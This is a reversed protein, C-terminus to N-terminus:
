IYHNIDEKKIKKIIAHGIKKLLIININEGDAKKDLMIANIIENENVDPFEYPLGYKVLLNQIITASGERTIGLSESKKTINYMGIAVAEGHTYKKYNFCKEISHGVTHGFNLIMREGNDKEDKEVVEKKINCCTRIIEEINDLLSDKNKFGALQNLLKIDRICGYKIVEAMGDNLYRQNLTTLFNPDIYVAKPHYFSGILNKGSQLNIAVKGGISSDIQALLSTPIQIFPIGRLLTSAAFGTLDGIVGGGLAIMFDKRTIKFDLLEDYLYKLVDLSKSEEGPNVIIMKVKFGNEELNDKIEKGYLKNVNTDTVIAIKKNLCIKSIENGINNIIGRKIWIPYSNQLLNIDIKQM